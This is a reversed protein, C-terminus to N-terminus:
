YRRRHTWSRVIACAIFPWLWPRVMVYGVAYAMGAPGFNM